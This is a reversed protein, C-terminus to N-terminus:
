HNLSKVRIIIDVNNRLNNSIRTNHGIFLLFPKDEADAVEKMIRLQKTYTQYKVSKVEGVIYDTYMDPIANGKNTSVKTLNEPIEDLRSHLEAQKIRGAQQPTPQPETRRLFGKLTSRARDLGHKGLALVNQAATRGLGEISKGIRPIASQVADKVASSTRAIGARLATGAASRLAATAIGGGAIGGLFGGAMGAYDTSTFAKGTESSVGARLDKVTQILAPASAILLGAVVVGAAIPSAAAILGIGATTVAAIATGKAFEVGFAAAGEWFKSTERGDPDVNTIPNAHAYQYRNPGDSVGSPDPSLWNGQWPVFYRAGFYYFGTVLDREKGTWRYQKLHRSWGFSTQGYPFYEEFSEAALGNANESLEIRGSGLHDSVVCHVALGHDDWRVTALREGQENLVGLTVRGGALEAAGLYLRTTGLEQKVARAGSADYAFRAEPGLPPAARLLRNEYDWDMRRLHAQSVVNGQLDYSLNDVVSGGVLVRELRNCHPAFEFRRTWHHRADAGIHQQEILNGAPDYAYCERYFALQQSDHPHPQSRGAIERGQSGSALTQGPHERGTAATLRYISDYAFEQRAPVTHADSLFPRNFARDEIHLVNGAPDYTYQFHQWRVGDGDCLRAALRYTLPDYQYHTTLWTRDHQVTRVRQGRANYEAARLAHQWNAGGSQVAVSFLQGLLNYQRRENIQGAHLQWFVRHQADTATQSTLMGNAATRTQLVPHGNWDYQQVTTTVAGAGGANAVFEMVLRGRLYNAEGNAVSEGYRYSEALVGDVTVQAPRRLADYRHEVFRLQEDWAFAPQKDVTVVAVQRGPKRFHTRSDWDAQETLWPNGLLDHEWRMITRGLPDIVRQQNDEVDFRTQTHFMEPHLPRPPNSSDPSTDGTPTSRNDAIRLFPHGQSDLFVLQPTGAQRAVQAGIKRACYIRTTNESKSESNQLQYWNPLYDPAPLRQFFGGLDSDAAPNLLSTDNRDWIEQSWAGFRTKEWSHDPHLIGVVRELADYFLTRAVGHRSWQFHHTDAFFPEFERVPKGKNNLERKGSLLWSVQPTSAALRASQGEESFGDTYVIAIEVPSASGAEQSVHRQRSLVCSWVPWPSSRAIALSDYYARPHYISRWTAQGLLHAAAAQPNRYFDALQEATLEYPQDPNLRDQSQRNRGEVASAVALGWTDFRLRTVAGNPDTLRFPQLVRYDSEVLTVNGLPESIRTKLLRWRDYEFQTVNGAPGVREVPVFSAAQHRPSSGDHGSYNQYEQPAWWFGPNPGPLRRYGAATLLRVLDKGTTAAQHNLLAPVRDFALRFSQHPLAPISLEGLPLSQRGTADVFHARLREILRRTRIAPDAAQEAVQDHALEITAVTLAAQFDSSRYFGKAFTPTFGSLEWTREECIMPLHRLGAAPDDIEHTYERDIFKMYTHRQVAHEEDTLYPADHACGAERRGYAVTAVQTPNGWRDIKLRLEHTIRPDTRQREYHYDLRQDLLPLFVAPQGHERPKLLRVRHCHESVAFPTEPHELQSGAIREESYVEERLIRGKLARCAERLTEGCVVDEFQTDPLLIAAADGQFYEAQLRQVQSQLPFFAGTHFWTRKLVPPVHFEAAANSPLEGCSADQVFETFDVSDREEVCAFGRFEREDADFHGHHYCYDTIHKRGTIRDLREIQAVVQVPMGLKTIWTRGTDRDRAAFEASSTLRLHIEGGINNVIRTLGHPKPPASQAHPSTQHRCGQPGCGGALHVYRLSRGHTAPDRATWVLCSTGNALLDVVSFDAPDHVPVFPITEADTWSNGACNRWCRIGEPGLYLLDTAGSGDVDAFRLRRAEFEEPNAFWPANAMRIKAGFRGHGRNPWYAVEGNRIRVVDTLGDGSMDALFITQNRDNFLVRPSRNDPTDWLVRQRRGFGRKGLSPYWALAENETIVFDALGDGDLDFFKGSPDDFALNPLSEFPRQGTWQDNITRERYGASSPNLDILDVVGDGTLDLLQVSEGGEGPAIMQAMAPQLEPAALKGRTRNRAFSWVGLPSRNLLGPAGEGNLDVWEWRSSADANPLGTLSATRVECHQLDPTAAYHFELPPFARAILGSATRPESALRPRYGIQTVARLKSLFPNEDYQLEFSRVLEDYVGTFRHRVLIRRCLRRTRQQFGSRYSSFADARELWAPPGIRRRPDPNTEYAQLAARPENEGALAPGYDFQLEFLPIFNEGRLLKDLAKLWSAAPDSTPISDILTGVRVVAPYLMAFESEGHVGCDSFYNAVLANGRDDYSLQLRWEYQREPDEPDALIGEATLGYISTVNDRTVIRWFVQPGEEHSTWREILAFDGEIRPQFVAIRWAGSQRDSVRVLHDFGSLLITDRDDYTPVKLDNRRKISPFDVSWGSGWPGNGAGSNYRLPPIQIREFRGEPLKLLPIAFNAAGSFADVSVQEQFGRIAGGGRPLTVVRDPTNSTPTTRAPGTRSATSM